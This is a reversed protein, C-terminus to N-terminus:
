VGFQLTRSSQGDVNVSINHTGPDLLKGLTFILQTANANAGTQYVIDDITLRVDGGNLRQGNLTLRHVNTGAVVVNAVGVPTAVLPIVQLTRSNTASSAGDSLVLRVQYVGNTLGTPITVKAQKDSGGALFAGVSTTGAPGDFRVSAPTNTFGIGNLTLTLDAASAPDLATRIPMIYSIWPTVNFQLAVSARGALLVSVNIQPGAELDSPLTVTMTEHPASTTAVITAVQGGVMVVSDQTPMTLGSGQIVLSNAIIVGGAGVHVLAGSPPVLSVLQAAQWALITANTSIVIGADVPPPPTPTLEVLSIEYAVSLRYPQNITAWIKSLEDIGIPALIIKIQEYSNLLFAPLVTDADFGPSSGLPPIHVNNLIPNEHLAIMASGLMTHADDGLQFSNDDPRTGLPTLLYFLQLGLAPLNSAPTTRDGPWPQNKTFPSEFVRYLYLNVGSATPLSDGPPLLTVVASASVKVLENHLLM